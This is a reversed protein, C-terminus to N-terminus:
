PTAPSRLRFFHQPAALDNTYPSGGGPLNFYPGQANTAGQLTFTGLWSLVVADGAQNVQLVPILTLTAPASTVAGATNRVIVSYLGAHNPLFNNLTLSSNTAGNLASGNFLWQYAFPGTGTASVSLVANSGTVVTRSVPGASIGPGLVGIRAIFADNLGASALSNTPGFYGPSTFRGALYSNNAADVAISNAALGSRQAWFLAGDSGRFKAVYGQRSFYFSDLYSSGTSTGCIYPNGDADLALGDASLYDGTCCSLSSIHTWLRRGTSDYKTLM